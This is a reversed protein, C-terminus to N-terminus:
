DDSSGKEGQLKLEDLARQLSACEAVGATIAATAILTDLDVQYVEYAQAVSKLQYRLDMSRGVLQNLQTYLEALKKSRDDYSM